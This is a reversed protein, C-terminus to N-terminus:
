LNSGQAAWEVLKCYTAITRLGRCFRPKKIRRPPPQSTKRRMEPAYQAPNHAAEKEATGGGQAAREYDAETVQWYHKHAVLTSHGLWAAAVHAPYERFQAAKVRRDVLRDGRVLLEDQLVLEL